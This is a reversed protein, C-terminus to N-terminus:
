INRQAIITNKKQTNKSAAFSLPYLCVSALPCALAPPNKAKATEDLTHIYPYFHSHAAQVTDYGFISERLKKQKEM